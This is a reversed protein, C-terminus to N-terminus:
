RFPRISLLFTRARIPKTLGWLFQSGLNMKFVECAESESLLGSKTLGHEMRRNSMTM